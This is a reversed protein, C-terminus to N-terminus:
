RAVGPFSGVYQITFDPFSDVIQIKFDPFSDVIQWKGASVPFATVKQVKLDPFATVVQVRYDPFTTVFQIKGHIRGLETNSLKRGASAPLFLAFGVLVVLGLCRRISFRM